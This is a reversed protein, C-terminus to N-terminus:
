RREPEAAVGWPGNGAKITAVVRGAATDIVSVDNSVGNATYLRRGGDGLAIGWPRQGVPIRGREALTEADLVAVSNGRGTAVYVTRGDPSVVVGCPRAPPAVPVTRVARHGGAVDILTVGAGLEATVYARRGDPSFAASRPRQGVEVNAVVARKATDIVTVTGSTEATVYVWRGDPSAAVGEPEIGVTLTELVRGAKADVISAASADENSVYVVAGDPSAAIGEPDTGGPFRRVTGSSGGVEVIASVAGPRRTNQDTLAVFLRGNSWVVGRPRSGVEITGTVRNTRGDIVTITGSRENSVFVRPGRSCGAGALVAAAAAFAAAFRSRRV